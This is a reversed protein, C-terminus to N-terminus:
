FKTETEFLFKFYHFIHNYQWANIFRSYHHCFYHIQFSLILIIFLFGFNLSFFFFENLTTNFHWNPKCLSFVNLKQEVRKRAEALFSFFKFFGQGFSEHKKLPHPYFSRACLFCLLGPIELPSEGFCEPCSFFESLVLDLCNEHLNYISQERLGTFRWERCVFRLFRWNRFIKM